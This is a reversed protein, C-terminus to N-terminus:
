TLRLMWVHDVLLATFLGLLYVISFGFTKMAQGERTGRRLLWAERLFGAAMLVAGALYILGSMGILYPLLSVLALLITYYWVLDKTLAIGHTVPLMPIGARAYDDRRHIALAWFHPPTWVFIILVLLWAEASMEGTMAAWGLLPPLAGSLGGIVINQPTARKLYRTYIGAYGVMGLATLWATLPNVWVLLVLMSLAALFGAWLLAARGSVRGRVLPRGQTRAMVADIRQDVWQNIVAASAMGAWLGLMALLAHALDVGDHPALVMGVVATVLLMAVVRPKTLAWYDRWNAAGEPMTTTLAM